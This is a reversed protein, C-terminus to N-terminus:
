RKNKFIHINKKINEFKIPYHKYYNFKDTKDNYEKIVDGIRLHLIIDNEKPKNIQEKSKENLIKNLLFFNNKKMPKNRLVYEAGISNPYRKPISKYYEHPYKDYKKNTWCSYIDGLRYRKWYKNNNIFEEVM